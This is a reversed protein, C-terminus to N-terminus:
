PKKFILIAKGTYNGLKADPPVTAVFMLKKSGNFVFNNEQPITWKALEGELVIMVKVPEDSKLDVSRSSVGSPVVTGFNLEEEGLDFGIHDSVKLKMDYVKTQKVNYAYKFYGYLLYTIMVCIVAVILILAILKIWNNRSHLSEKRHSIM